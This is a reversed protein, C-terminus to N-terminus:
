TYVVTGIKEVKGTYALAELLRTVNMGWLPHTLNPSIEALPILVFARETIRPHPVVLNSENLTLGGCLLIDLDLTRPTVTCRSGRGHSKEIALLKKLIQHLDFKTKVLCVCNLFDPHNEVGVPSTEYISSVALIEGKLRHKIDSIAKSIHTSRDGLNSGLGIYVLKNM